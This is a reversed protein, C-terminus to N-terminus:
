EQSEVHPKEHPSVGPLPTPKFTNNRRMPGPNSRQKELRALYAEEESLWAMAPYYKEALAARGARDNGFVTLMAPSTVQAIIGKYRAVERRAGAIECSLAKREAPLNFTHEYTTQRRPVYAPCSSSAAVVSSKGGVCPRDSYSVVGSSSVCKNVQALSYAPTLLLLVLLVLLSPKLSRELPATTLGLAQTLPALCDLVTKNWKTASPHITLGGYAGSKSRGGSRLALVILSSAELRM